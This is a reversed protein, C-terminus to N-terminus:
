SANPSVEMFVVSWSVDIVDVRYMGWTLSKEASLYYTYNGPPVHISISSTACFQRRQSGSGDLIGVFTSHANYAGASTGWGFTCVTSDGYITITATATLLIIGTVPARVTYSWLSLPTTPINSHDNLYGGNGRIYKSSAPDGPEGQPGIPGQEGQEGQPGAPGDPGILGQEGQPGPPGQEGQPGPPGEPGIPGQEGQPGQPGQPGTIVTPAFQQTAVSSVVGSAIIAVILGLVLTTISLSIKQSM